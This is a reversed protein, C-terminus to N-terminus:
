SGTAMLENIRRLLLKARAFARQELLRDSMRVYANALERRLEQLAPMTAPLTAGLATLQTYVSELETSERAGAIQQRWRAFQEAYFQEAAALPFEPAEGRAQAAAYDTLIKGAAAIQELEALVAQVEVEAAFVTRGLDTLVGLEQAQHAAASHRLAQIFSAAVARDAAPLPVQLRQLAAQLEQLRAAEDYFNGQQLRTTLERSLSAQLHDRQQVLQEQALLLVHNFPLLTLAAALIQLAAPYDPATVTATLTQPRLAQQAQQYFYDALQPQQQVLLASRLPEGHREIETLVQAPPMAAVRARVTEWAPQAAVALQLEAVSRQHYTVGAVGAVVLSSLLLPYIKLLPSVPSLLQCFTAATAKDAGARL